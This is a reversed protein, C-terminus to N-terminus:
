YNGECCQLCTLGLSRWMDVVRKRDEIVFEISYHPVILKEYFDRKYDLDDRHDDDPRMYLRHYRIANAMLWCETKERMSEPRGTLILVEIYLTKGYLAYFADTILSCWDNLQDGACAEHFGAWDKPKRQIFHLRHDVNCLTGDLDIIIARKRM